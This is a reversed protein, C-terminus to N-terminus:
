DNEAEETGIRKPKIRLRYPEAYEGHMIYQGKYPEEKYKRQLRNEKYWRLIKGAVRAPAKDGHEGHEIFNAVVIEPEDYPAFCVFWAHPLGPNEATGTKGAAPFGPVYAAVGTARKVVQKLAEKIKLLNQQSVPVEAVREPQNDLVVRGDRSIIKFVVHPKFREGRALTAYCQALQLPTQQIFGQGIAMNLNDGRYWAERYRRKKWDKTPILGDKEAPLDVGSARGLGYLRAYKGMLDVGLKLGLEYFVVDCSWVLGELVDVKGHGMELWCRALRSGLRYFGHCDTVEDGVMVGEELAASLTVVKFTSGPPYISIARNMFPHNKKDIRDWTQKDIPETFIKPDYVPRSAMALIEGTRPDLVVSAGHFDALAEEVAKQLELDITLKVDSGPIPDSASVVRVPKGYVDVEVKQGGDIGRLYRDYFREVGDKGIYDGLKYGRGSWRMLESSEIEGVYGLVHAALNGHPYYRVPRYRVVVGHMESGREELKTVTELALHDKILVPEFPQYQKKAIQEEIKQPPIQIIESLRDIIQQRELLASPLSSQLVYVAFVAKNSVLVKGTRDYIIGRPALIPIVKAANEEALYLYKRGEVVQLIFLRLIIAVFVAILIGSFVKFQHERDM